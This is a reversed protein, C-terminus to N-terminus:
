LTLLLLNSSDGVDPHGFIQSDICEEALGTIVVPHQDRGVYLAAQELELHTAPRLSDAEGVRPADVGPEALHDIDGEGDLVVTASNSLSPDNATKLNFACVFYSSQWFCHVM